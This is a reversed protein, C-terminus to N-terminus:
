GSFLGTIGGAIDNIEAGASDEAGSIFPGLLPIQGAFSNIGSLIGGSSSDSTSNESCEIERILKDGESGMMKFLPKLLKTATQLGKLAAKDQQTCQAEPKPLSCDNSNSSSTSGTTSEVTTSEDSDDPNNNESEDESSDGEDESSDGEDGSRNDNPENEKGASKGKEEEEERQIEQQAELYGKLFNAMDEGDMASIDGVKPLDISYSGHIIALIVASTLLKLTM